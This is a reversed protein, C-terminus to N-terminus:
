AQTHTIRFFQLVLKDFRNSIKELHAFNLILQAYSGARRKFEGINIVVYKARKRPNLFVIIEGSEENDEVCM